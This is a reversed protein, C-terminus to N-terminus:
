LCYVFNCKFYHQLQTVTQDSGPAPSGLKLWWVFGASPCAPPEHPHTPKSIELDIIGEYEIGSSSASGCTRQSSLEM